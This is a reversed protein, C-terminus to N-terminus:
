LRMFRTCLSILLTEWGHTCTGVPICKGRELPVYPDSLMVMAYSHLLARYSFYLVYTVKFVRCTDMLLM